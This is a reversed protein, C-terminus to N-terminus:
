MSLEGAQTVARKPVSSAPPTNMTTFGCVFSSFSAKMRSSLSADIRIVSPEIARMAAEAAGRTALKFATTQAAAGSPTSPM